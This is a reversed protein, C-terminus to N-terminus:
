SATMRLVGARLDATKRAEGADGAEVRSRRESGAAPCLAQGEKETSATDGWRFLEWM